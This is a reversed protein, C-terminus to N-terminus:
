IRFDAETGARLDSGSKEVGRERKDKLRSGEDKVRSGSKRAPTDDAYNDYL